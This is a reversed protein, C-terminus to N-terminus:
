ASAAPLGGSLSGGDDLQAVAEGHFEFTDILQGVGVGISFLYLVPELFGTLFLKWASKYVIFNRLVLLRAANAPTLPAPIAVRDLVAM